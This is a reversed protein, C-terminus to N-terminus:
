LFFDAAYNECFVELHSSRSALVHKRFIEKLISVTFDAAEMYNFKIIKKKKKIFIVRSFEVAKSFWALRKLCKKEHVASGLSYCQYLKILALLQQFTSFVRNIKQKMVIHQM